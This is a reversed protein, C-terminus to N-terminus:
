WFLTATLRQLLLDPFQGSNRPFAVEVSKATM